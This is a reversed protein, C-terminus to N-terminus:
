LPYAPAESKVTVWQWQTFEEWNAPGGISTGNGSAGVGGFPNVVEDNVTSDNIHLLGVRLKEGLAMARGVSRSVIAASLGYDTANVLAAAEDDTDFTTVVAVPGFIEEEFAPNGPKVGTLVTPEFFLGNSKGGTELNAGAEVAASVVKLAHDVQVQNIIPGLAVQGSTPDGVPLNRAHAALRRTFEAAVASHVLVRGASMCIQGQHLYVSWVANKVALDLDADDLVVFSNKGGLELSVKKLNRSATEGVKRGAATSGTFQIMGINRDECLAAGAAGDGPLVSLCGTPLGAMEFLRAIVQGGSIATRPDPKLVVANGIAVAPAVARMALYLPFNFPSIVGIVGIPRRRAISIRGPESPLVQGMAQSPMSAAEYLAKITLAVEFQAKPIISGAERVLWNAIEDSHVEAIRAAARLIEARREYGTAAWAPQAHRAAEAARSVEQPTAMGVSALKRGTAPECVDRVTTSPRWGGDYVHGNLHEQQLLQPEPM